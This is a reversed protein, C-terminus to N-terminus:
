SSQRAVRLAWVVLPLQLPLRAIAARHLQPPRSRDLAMSVNAPFVAVFLLAASRAGLRRTRPHAVAAAVALEAVGSAYVLERAHGLRKPVISAYPGPVAFHLIGAGALLAVLSRAADPRPVAPLM